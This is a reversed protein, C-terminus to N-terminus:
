VFLDPFFSIPTPLTTRKERMDDISEVIKTLEERMARKMM